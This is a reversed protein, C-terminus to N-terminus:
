NQSPFIGQLAIVFNLALFPQRNEHPTSGGAISLAQANMPTPNNPTVFDDVGFKAKKAVVNNAPLNTSAPLTSASLTHTHAPMEAM